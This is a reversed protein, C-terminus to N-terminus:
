SGGLEPEAALEARERTQRRWDTHVRYCPHDINVSHSFRYIMRLRRAMERNRGRLVSERMAIDEMFDDDVLSEIARIATMPGVHKAM